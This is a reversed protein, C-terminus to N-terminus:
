QTVEAVSAAHTRIAQARSVLRQGHWVSVEIRKVGTEELRPTDLDAPDVRDVRVRRQWGEYGPLPTGDRATPPSSSWNHYDDVHDFAQRSNQSVDPNFAGAKDPDRYPQQLIEQMLSEALQRGRLQEAAHFQQMRSAGVTHMAVAFMTAIILVAMVVEVLSFGGGRRRRCRAVAPCGSVNQNDWCVM